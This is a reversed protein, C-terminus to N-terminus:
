GTVPRTRIFLSIREIIASPMNTIKRSSTGFVVHVNRTRFQRPRVSGRGDGGARSLDHGDEQDTTKSLATTQGMFGQIIDAHDQTLM